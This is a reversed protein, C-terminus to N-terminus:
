QNHESAVRDEVSGRCAFLSPASDLQGLLSFSPLRGNYDIRIWHLLPASSLQEVNAGMEVSGSQVPRLTPYLGLIPWVISFSFDKAPNTNCFEKPGQQMKQELELVLSAVSSEPAFSKDGTLVEHLPLSYVQLSCVISSFQM